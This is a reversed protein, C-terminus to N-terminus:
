AAAPASKPLADLARRLSEELKIPPMAGIIEDVEKGGSFYKFAPISMVRFNFSTETNQDIDMQVVKVNPNGAFKHAIQEVHPAMALCPPCWPAWFDVLVVGPFQLVEEAFNADTVDPLNSM